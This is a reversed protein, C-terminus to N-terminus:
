QRMLSQEYAKSATKRNLRIKENSPDEDIGRTFARLANRYEKRNFYCLGINNYADAVLKKERTGKVVQYFIEIAKTYMAKKVYIKGLAFLAEPDGPKILLAKQLNQLSEKLAKESTDIQTNILAINILAKRSFDSSSHIKIVGNYKELAFKKMGRKYYVTALKFLTEQDQPWRAAIKQLKRQALDYMNKEYYYDAIAILPKANKPNLQSAKEWAEIALDPKSAHKYVIGMNYYVTDDKPSITLAKKYYDIALNYKQMDDLINGMNLYAVRANETTPAIETVKKYNEFARDLMKKEYYIEGIRAYMRVNRKNLALADQYTKLSKDYDKLAFFADGINELLNGNKASVMAAKEFQKVAENKKNQRLYSIGLNYRSIADIPRLLIAQRLYKEADSYNKKDTYLVGIRSYARYAVEGTKDLTGAKKFYEIASFEDGKKYLASGLNYHVAANAPAIDIAKRYTKIAKKYKGLEYYINGLIIYAKPNKDNISISKKAAEIAKKYNNSKRYANALNKYVDYNSSDYKAARQYYVIAKDYEKRAFSILGLYTLAIAKDKDDTGSEVVSNFETIADNYFGKEYSEKGRKLHINETKFTLSDQDTEIIKKKKNTTEEITKKKTSLFPIPKKYVFKILVFVTVIAVTAIILSLLVPNIKLRSGTRKPLESSAIDTIRNKKLFEDDQAIEPKEKM